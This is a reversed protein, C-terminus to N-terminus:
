FIIDIRATEHAKFTYQVHDGDKALDKGNVLIRCGERRNRLTLTQAQNSTIFARIGQDDWDMHNLKAFTYLWVGEITGHMLNAPMAPLFEVTGPESFVCMEVLFAPVAGTLDPFVGRYPFHSTQLTRRVFGHNLLQSLNQEAEEMDKLRIATFTRHIIGHASDDQQARK